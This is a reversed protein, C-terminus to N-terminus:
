AHVHALPRLTLRDVVLTLRATGSLADLGCRIAPRGQWDVAEEPLLVWRSHEAMFQRAVPDSWLTPEVAPWVGLGSCGARACAAVSWHRQLRQSLIDPFADRTVVQRQVAGGCHLCIDSGTALSRQAREEIARMARTLAPRFAHLNELSAIGKSRFVDVGHQQSCTPCRLRLETRGNALREFRGLLPRRGCLYCIIRTTQWQEGAETAGPATTPTVRITLGFAEAELRLPGALTERLRGRARHLRLELAPASVGLTEAAEAASLGRLYHLELVARAQPSLYGLARDLLRAMEGQELADWPDVAQADPVQLAETASGGLSATAAAHAAHEELSVTGAGTHRKEAHRGRVYMQCQHRCIADLWADFREADRLQEFRQWGRIVTEQVVDDAVDAPVGFARTLRLLRTRAQQLRALLDNQPLAGVYSEIPADSPM